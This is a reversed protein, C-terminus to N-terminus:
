RRLIENSRAPESQRQISTIYRSNTELCSDSFLGFWSDSVEAVSLGLTLVEAGSLGLTLFRQELCAM